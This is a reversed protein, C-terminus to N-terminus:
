NIVGNIRWKEFIYMIMHILIHQMDEISGADISPIVIGIDAIQQLDNLRDGTISIVNIKKEKAWRTPKLINESKGSTSLVILTDGPNGLAMLPHLFVQEFSVDNAIATLYSINENLSIARVKGFTKAANKNLEMVFHSANAASGGNGVVFIQNNTIITNRIQEIALEIYEWPLKSLIAANEEAYKKCYFNIDKM